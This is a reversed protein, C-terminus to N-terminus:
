RFHRRLYDLHQRHGALAAEYARLLEQASSADAGRASLRSVVARQAEVHREGRVVRDRALALKERRDM